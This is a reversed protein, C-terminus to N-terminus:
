SRQGIAVINSMKDHINVVIYIKEMSERRGNIWATRSSPEQELISEGRSCRLFLVKPTEGSSASVLFSSPRLAALQPQNFLSCFYIPLSSFLENPPRRSNGLVWSGLWGRGFGGTKWRTRAEERGRERERERERKRERENRRRIWRKENQARVAGHKQVAVKRYRMVHKSTPSLILCSSSVRRYNIRARKNHLYYINFFVKLKKKFIINVTM